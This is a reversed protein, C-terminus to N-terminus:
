FILFRIRDLSGPIPIEHDIFNISWHIIVMLFSRGSTFESGQLMKGLLVFYPFISCIVNQSILSIIKLEINLILQYNYFYM